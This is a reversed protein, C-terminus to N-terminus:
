TLSGVVSDLHSPFPRTALILGTDQLLHVTLLPDTLLVSWVPPEGSYEDTAEQANPILSYLNAVADSPGGILTTGTDIAVNPSDIGTVNTNNLQISDM